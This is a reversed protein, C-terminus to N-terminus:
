QPTELCKGASRMAEVAALREALLEKIKFGHCAILLCSTWWSESREQSIRYYREATDCLAMGEAARGLYYWRLNDGFNDELVVTALTEWQGTDHLSKTLAGNQGAAWAASFGTVVGPTILEAKGGAFDLLQEPISSPGHQQDESRDGTPAQHQAPAAVWRGVIGTTTPWVVFARNSGDGAIDVADWISGSAVRAEGLEVPASWNGDAYLLYLVRRDATTVLHFAKGGAPAVKPEWYSSLPLPVPYGWKGDDLALSADHARVILVMGSEPDVASTAQLLGTRETGLWPIQSGNLPLLKRSSTSGAAAPQEAAPSIPVLAIRAYRSDNTAAIGGRSADYVVHLNGDDDVAPMANSTDLNEHPDLVYWLPEAIAAEPVMVLKQSASHWPFILAGMGGGFAYWEWRGKAGVQKGDVDFAWLLGNKGQVFRPNRVHIDAAEWPTPGAVRWASAERVLHKGDLLLHLKNDSDFAASIVSPSSASEVPERQVAGDPSVVVHHIEKPNKAAIFVHAHGSDDVLADVHDSSTRFPLLELVPGLQTDPPSATPGLTPESACSALLACLSGLLAVLANDCSLRVFHDRNCTTPRCNPHREGSCRRM